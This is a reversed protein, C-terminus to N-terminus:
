RLIQIRGDPRLVAVFDLTDRQACFAVDDRLDPLSFLKAGNRALRLAAALDGAHQRYLQRAILVSDSEPFDSISPPLLEMLAGAALVDEFATEEFTGSCVIILQAPATEKLRQAVAGLNLFAGVLIERAGACARLARTGNTTTSIILRGKVDDATYERPSNGLAFEVGGTLQAGIRRGQREGALLAEPNKQRWALAEPIDEVPIVAEAGNALATLISSTARLVDFVVCVTSSLDRGALAAFDAPTFLIEVKSKM